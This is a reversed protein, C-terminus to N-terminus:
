TRLTAVLRKPNLLLSLADGASRCVVDAAKLTHVCAGEAEVLCIGLAADKLMLMDNRGNGLCVTSRAGLQTVYDAKAKDQRGPPLITLTVPLPRLNEAALGFTDATVVHIELDTSLKRILPATEPILVGDRALTGNYDCVMACLGLEGHGPIDIAIM